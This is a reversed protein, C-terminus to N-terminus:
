RRGLRDQAVNGRAFPQLDAHLGGAGAVPVDAARRILARLVVGQAAAVVQAREARPLDRRRVEVLEVQDQRHVAAVQAGQLPERWRLLAVLDAQEHRSAVRGVGGRICVLPAVEDLADGGRGGLLEVVGLSREAPPTTCVLLSGVLPCQGIHPAGGLRIAQPALEGVHDALLALAQGVETDARHRVLGLAVHRERALQRPQELAPEAVLRLRHDPLEQREDLQRRALRRINGRREREVLRADIARVGQQGITRAVDREGGAGASAVLAPREIAM